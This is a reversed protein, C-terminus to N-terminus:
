ISRSINCSHQTTPFNRALFARLRLFFPSLHMTSSLFISSSSGPAPGLELWAAASAMHYCRSASVFVHMTRKLVVLDRGFLFLDQFAFYIFGPEMCLSHCVSAPENSHIHLPSTLHYGSPSSIINLPLFSLSYYTLLLYTLSPNLFYPVM